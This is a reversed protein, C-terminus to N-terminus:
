ELTIARELNIVDSPADPLEDMPSNPDFNMGISLSLVRAPLPLLDLDIVVKGDTFFQEQIEYNQVLYSGQEFPWNLDGELDMVFLSFEGQRISVNFQFTGDHRGLTMNIDWGGFFPDEQVTLPLLEDKHIVLKGGIVQGIRSPWSPISKGGENQIWETSQERLWQAAEQPTQPMQGGFQLQDIEKSYTIDLRERELSAIRVKQGEESNQLFEPLIETIGSMVMRVGRQGQIKEVTFM